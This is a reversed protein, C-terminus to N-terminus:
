TFERIIQKRIRFNV